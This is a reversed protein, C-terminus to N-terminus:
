SPDEFFLYFKKVNMRSISFTTIFNKEEFFPVSSVTPVVPCLDSPFTFIFKLIYSGGGENAEFYQSAISGVKLGSLWCNARV